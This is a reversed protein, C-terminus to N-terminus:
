HTSGENEPVAVSIRYGAPKGTVEEGQGIMPLRIELQDVSVMPENPSSGYASCRFEMDKACLNCKASLELYAVNTDGSTAHNIHIHVDSHPCNAM